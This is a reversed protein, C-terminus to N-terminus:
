SRDSRDLNVCTHWVRRRMERELQSSPSRGSDHVNLGLSQAVRIALGVTNWCRNAHQTSQLYVGTLLLMQVLSLSTSDLIEFLLLQRSRQYFDDALSPKDAPAILDSFQCGLAFVLNLSAIFIAEDLNPLVGCKNSGDERARWLEYQHLFSPRHLIPFLPHIFSFFCSIFNDANRRM